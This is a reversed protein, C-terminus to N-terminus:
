KKPRLGTPNPRARTTSDIFIMGDYEPKLHTPDMFQDAMKISYGSGMFRMVTPATLWKDVVPNAPASRFDVVYAPIGAAAFFWEATGKEAPGVTFETLICGASTRQAADLDCSQFSGQNFCFGLTYYDDGYWERLYAGMNPLGGLDGVKVHGNHAWVVMRTGPDLRRMWWAINEAMFFDRSVMAAAKPDEIGGAYASFYQGMVRIYQMVEEFERESSLRVFRNRYFSLEAVFKQYATRIEERRQKNEPKHLERIGEYDALPELAAKASAVKGPDLRTLYAVAEKLSRELHQIDYGVFMVKQDEPVETNYDRMWAIMDRVEETDWTWFGQSALAAAPDGRGELVYENINNCAPYSAEIAFVTFGMERVLFELMRHKFQFFERTGHTAEGLAVIRAEGILAKLPQLDDFGIGAQVGQLPIARKTLWDNVAKIEKPSWDSKPAPAADQAAVPRLLGFLLAATLLVSKKRFLKERKM